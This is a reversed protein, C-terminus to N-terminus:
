RTWGEIYYTRHRHCLHTPNRRCEESHGPKDQECWCCAGTWWARIRRFIVPDAEAM